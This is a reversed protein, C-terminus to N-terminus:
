TFKSLLAFYICCLLSHRSYPTHEFNTVLAACPPRHRIDVIAKPKVAPDDIATLGIDNDTMRRLCKNAVNWRDWQRGDSRDTQSRCHHLLPTRLTLLTGPVGSNWAFNVFFFLKGTVTFILVDADFVLVNHQLVGLKPKFGLRACQDDRTHFNM